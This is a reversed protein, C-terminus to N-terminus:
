WWMHKNSAIKIINALGERNLMKYFYENRYYDKSIQAMKTGNIKEHILGDLRTSEATTLRGSQGEPRRMLLQEMDVLWELDEKEAGHALLVANEWKGANRWNRM